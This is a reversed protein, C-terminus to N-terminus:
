ECGWVRRKYQLAPAGFNILLGRRIRSAKLYNLLQGEDQTSLSDAAKVEVLVGTECIFDVYYTVPLVIGQYDIPLLVEPRFPIKRREFEIPLAAKYVKELFGHGLERHVAMAAGIVRYTEPDRETTQLMASLPQM